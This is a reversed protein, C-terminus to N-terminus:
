VLPISKFAEGQTKLSNCDKYRNPAYRYDERLPNNNDESILYLEIGEVNGTTFSSLPVNYSSYEGVVRYEQDKDVGIEVTRGSRVTVGDDIFSVAFQFNRIKLDEESAGERLDLCGIIQPFRYVQNFVGTNRLELTGLDGKATSLYDVGGRNSTQLELAGYELSKVWDFDEDFDQTYYLFLVSLGMILLIAVVSGYIVNKM